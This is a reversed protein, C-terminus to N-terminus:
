STGSTSSTTVPAVIPNNLYELKTLEGGFKITHRGTVKTAVDRYGFTWQNLDSGLASGFSNLGTSGPSNINVQAPRRRRLTTPLKTGAGDVRM